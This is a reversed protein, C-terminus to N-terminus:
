AANSPDDLVAQTQRARWAALREALAPTRSRSSRPRSSAPTRQTASRRGDRGARRAADPRDVAAFRPRRPARDPHPRRHGAPGDQRRADRAPAGRRRRRRRDGSGAAPPKRPTASCATRRETPRCSGSSRAFASSTSCPSPRRSRRSTPAAAVSSASSPATARDIAETMRDDETKTTDDAWDLKALAERVARSRWTWTTTGLATLHGMKRREFVERKDYLHLHVAPDALADAVGLLRAPRRPGRGSCTSWRRRLWPRGAVRAGARLDRPHAARVALDRRGRDDLPRLQPRAAGARQRGALRRAAPLARRDAHRQLDMAAALARHRDRRRRAAVEPPGPCARRDRGPDGRRARQPRGPLGRGRRRRARRHGVAGGRVRARARRAARGRDSASGSGPATSSRSTPSGSSAVATTAASRCSSGSRCAWSAPPPGRRRWPGSRAGRRSRSGPARWSGGSPSGIRPSSCRGAARGSRCSAGRRAEVVAAAVHELEYTVVASLRPWACPPGSTTTRRRRRGSRRGGRGPLRTRISCPSGIAWRARRWRRADPRAPRRRPHRHRRAARDAAPRGM